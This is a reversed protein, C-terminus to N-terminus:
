RIHSETHYVSKGLQSGIVNATSQSCSASCPCGRRDGAAAFSQINGWNRQQHEAIVTSKQSEGCDCRSSFAEGARNGTWWDFLNMHLQNGDFVKFSSANRLPVHCIERSPIHQGIAVPLKGSPLSYGENNRRLVNEKCVMMYSLYDQFCMAMELIMKMKERKIRAM